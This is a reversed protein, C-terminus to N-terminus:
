ELFQVNLGDFYCFNKKKCLNMKLITGKVFVEDTEFYLCFDIKLNM